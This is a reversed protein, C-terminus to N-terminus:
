YFIASARNSVTLFRLSKCKPPQLKNTKIRINFTVHLPTYGINYKQYAGGYKHSIRLNHKFKVDAINTSRHGKKSMLWMVQLGVMLRSKSAKYSVGPVVLCWETFLLSLIKHILFSGLKFLTTDYFTWLNLFASWAAIIVRWKRM